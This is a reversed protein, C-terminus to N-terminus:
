NSYEALQFSLLSVWLSVPGSFALNNFLFTPLTTCGINLWKDNNRNLGFLSFLPDTDFNSLVVIKEM